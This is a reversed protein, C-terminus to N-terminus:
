EIKEIEADTMRKSITGSFPMNMNVVWYSGDELLMNIRAFENISGVPEGKIRVHELYEFKFM